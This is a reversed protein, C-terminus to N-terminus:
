GDTIELQNNNGGNLIMVKTEARNIKLGAATSTTEEGELLEQLKGITGALFITDAILL